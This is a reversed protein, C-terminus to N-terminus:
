CFQVAGRGVPQLRYLGERSRCLSLILHGRILLKGAPDFPGHCAKGGKKGIKQYGIHQHGEGRLRHRGPHHGLQGGLHAALHDLDGHVVVLLDLFPIQQKREIGLGERQCHLLGAQGQCLCLLLVVLQIGRQRGSNGVDVGFLGQGVLLPALSLAGIGQKLAM